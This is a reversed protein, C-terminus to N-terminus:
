LQTNLVKKANFYKTIEELNLANLTNATTLGGKRACKVGWEMDHYGTKEHADPNISIKIGKEMAKYIWRWDLDLRFPHANLEISVHNAACCDIIYQHDIPYGERILLLRGTPHGLITTFPNEIAKKLRENAKEKEMKLNAHVSAVVFDFQSLIEPEYDLSGDNLIDSEIGKFIKFPGMKSNLLDIEKHQQLVREVSLGNAYVATKSHDCIGLYEYGLEKCYKAMDELSDLGDSWTSHNHLIGKLQPHEILDESNHKESFKLEDMGERMEPVIFNIGLNSYLEEESFGEGSFETPDYDILDLHAETASTEFVTKDFESPETYHFFLKVHLENEYVEDEVTWNNKLLFSKINDEEETTVFEITEVIDCCRRVEGTLEFNKGAFTNQFELLLKKAIPEIKAFHFKGKAGFSFEISKIIEAQIKLGFGKIQVLRNERCANFLEEVTEIGLNNWILNVKKPGLGKIKLMEMIGVPTKSMIDNLEDFSGTSLLQKISNLVSKGVGPLKSVEEDTMEAIPIGIKKLNFAAAQFARVKFENENHLEALKGYLGLASMIDYNDM